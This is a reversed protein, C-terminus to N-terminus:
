YLIGKGNKWFTGNQLSSFLPCLYLYTCNLSSIKDGLRFKRKEILETGEEVEFFMSIPFARVKKQSHINQDHDINKSYM